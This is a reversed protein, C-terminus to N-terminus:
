QECISVIFIENKVLFRHYWWKMFVLPPLVYRALGTFTGIKIMLLSLSRVFAADVRRGNRPRWATVVKSAVVSTGALQIRILALWEWARWAMVLWLNGYGGAFLYVFCFVSYNEPHMGLLILPCTSRVIYTCNRLIFLYIFLYMFLYIPPSRSRDVAM